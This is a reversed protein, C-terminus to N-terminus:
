FRRAPLFSSRFSASPSPRGAAIIFAGCLCSWRPWCSSCSQSFRLTIMSCQRQGWESTTRHCARSDHSPARRHSGQLARGHRNVAGATTDIVPKPYFGLLITLVVLPAMIAIERASMDAITALSPKELKGFVVRRYLTLAYVASLIVGFTAFFAAVSNAKFTGILSLFEGIFGSTGPLGVNAMTFVMFMFAYVPMRDALGGYAAIERTHMRDYVIGVCLFLAGAVIGHSVMQFVAGQVGTETGSFVGITVFGMHAVSSYAILKKMDKQAFAVLSTYIIATVGLVFMLPAYTVSAAPFMPLLFRIFGYGGMKLLIAALVVSGATPAEVHADPLWTHVPWMPLKVAFSALFAFLLWTQLNEAFHFKLLVPIETTGAQGYMALIALLM